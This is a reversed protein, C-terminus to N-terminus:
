FESSDESAIYYTVDKGVFSLLAVEKDNKSFKGINVEYEESKMLWTIYEGRLIIRFDVDSKGVAESYYSETNENRQVNESNMCEISLKGKKSVIAIEPLSLIGLMKQVNGITAAQLNFSAFVDKLTIDGNKPAIIDDTTATKYFTKRTGESIVLRGKSSEVKINPADFTSLVSLFRNLEFIAFEEPISEEIDARTFMQMTSAMSRVVNGQRFLMSGNVAAFNTLIDITRKSFTLDTM